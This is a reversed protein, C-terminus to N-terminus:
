MSNPKRLLEPNTTNHLASRVSCLVVNELKKSFAGRIQGEIKGRFKMTKRPIQCKLCTPPRVIIPPWGIPLTNASSSSRPTTNKAAANRSATFSKASWKRHTMSMTFPSTNSVWRPMSMELISCSASSAVARISCASSIISRPPRNPRKESHNKTFISSRTPRSRILTMAGTWMAMCGALPCSFCCCCGPRSPGWPRFLPIFGPLGCILLLLVSLIIVTPWFTYRLLVIWHKRFTITSGEEYRMKFFDALVKRSATMTKEAQPASAAAASAAELGLRKRIASQIAENENQRAVQKGRDILENVLAALIAPSGVHRFPISGTYTRVLVDGYGLWRGVLESQTNVAVVTELPAEERSDYLAVVKELWIVRRNTVIYYDNGWDIYQWVMWALSIFFAGFALSGFIWPLPNSTMTAAMFVFPWGLFSFAFPALLKYFLYSRHKRVLLYITEGTSLWDFYRGRVERRSEVVAVFIPVVAPYTEILAGFKDVSMRLLTASTEARVSATRPIGYLPAEEGFHDGPVFHGLTLEDGAQDQRTILLIGSFLIYFDMSLEGEQILVEDGKLYVIEFDKALAELELPKLSKFVAMRGLMPVIQSILDAM